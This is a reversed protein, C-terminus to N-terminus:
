AGTPATTGQAFGGIEYITIEGCSGGSRGLRGGGGAAGGGGGGAAGGGGGAATGGGAAGGGTDDAGGAPSSVPIWHDM